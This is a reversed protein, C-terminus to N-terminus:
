PLPLTLSLAVKSIIDVIKKAAKGNGFPQKWTRKKKLMKYVGNIIDVSKWGVIINSKVSVTEPRETNERITVCPINLICTEEQIGGSDTLVLRANRELKLFDLYGLPEIIKLNKIRKIPKSLNFEKIRKTTRPHIPFIVLHTRCLERIASIIEKLRNKNDVNEVRHLTVLFYTKNSILLDTLIKSKKEAIKINEITADVITNGTVFIKRKDIGETILNKKSIETPAFLFDSVHDTLIRNVEEPMERDFSRLGAEIHGVKIKLKSAALATAFVSNTDGEVLVIDPKDKLFIKEIRMLITGTQRGHTGPGIGLLYHPEPIRLDAFFIKDMKLSYHQGTHILNYRIKKRKLESFIPSLKIIEPRTGLVVCIKPKQIKKM